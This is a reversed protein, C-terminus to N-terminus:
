GVGALRRARALNRASAAGAREPDTVGNINQVGITPSPEVIVTPAAAPQAAMVVMRESAAAVKTAGSDIGLALGAAINEGLEAFLLSPSRSQAEKDAAAKADRVAARAAEEIFVTNQRIGNAIGLALNIGVGYGANQAVLNMGFLVPGTFIARANDVGQMVGPVASSQFGQGMNTGAQAGAAGAAPAVVGLNGLIVSATDASLRDAQAQMGTLGVTANEIQTNWLAKTQADANALETVLASGPGQSQVLSALGPLGAQLLGTISALWAQTEGVSANLADVFGQVSPTAQEGFASRVKAAYQDFVEGSAPVATAISSSLAEVTAKQADMAATSAETDAQLQQEARTAEGLANNLQSQTILGVQVFAAGLRQATGVNEEAVQKVQDLPKQLGDKIFQPAERQLVAIQRAMALLAADTARGFGKIDEASLRAAEGSDFLASALGVVGGIAAGWPGGVAFGVAVTSAVSALEPDVAQLIPLLAGVAAGFPGFAVAGVAAGAAVSTLEPGLATLVDSLVEVLPTVAHLAAGLPGIGATGVSALVQGALTAIPIADELVDLIPAVVPTGLAEINERLTQKIRELTVLSNKSGQEITERLTSGYKETAIAAGAAAKEYFTLESATAKGTDALARSQVEATSIDIGFQAAFRGGRSLAQGMRGAVDEVGGLTPNLAVARASLAILQETSRAVDDRSAGAATGLQFFSAATQRLADDDSGLSLALDSLDTNLNGVNVQNVRAALDGLASDFRETAGVAEIGETFFVGIAAAVTAVAAVAPGASGGLGTVADQLGSVNGQALGAAADLGTVSGGLESTSGAAEDAAGGLDSIAAEAPATDADVVVPDITAGALADDVQSTLTTTDAEVEVPTTVADLADLLGQRFTTTVEDLASGLTDVSSLADDVSLELDSQVSM